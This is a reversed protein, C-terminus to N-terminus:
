DHCFRDLFDLAVGNTWGFGTEPLYEGGSGREGPVFANYKEHMNKDKNWGILNAKVWVVALDRAVLVSRNTDLKILGLRHAM